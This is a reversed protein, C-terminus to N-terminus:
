IKHTKLLFFASNLTETVSSDMTLNLSLLICFSSVILFSLIEMVSSDTTLNLLLLILFPLVRDYLIINGYCQFENYFKIISSLIEM